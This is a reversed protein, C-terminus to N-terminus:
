TKESAPEPQSVLGLALAQMAQLIEDAKYTGRAVGTLAAAMSGTILTAIAEPKAPVRLAGSGGAGEAAGASYDKAIYQAIVSSARGRM